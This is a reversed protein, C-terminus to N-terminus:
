IKENDLFGNQHPMHGASEPQPLYFFFYLSCRATFRGGPGDGGEEEKVHGWRWFFSLSVMRVCVVCVASRGFFEYKVVHEVDLELIEPENLFRLLAREGQQRRRRRYREVARRRYGIRLLPFPSTIWIAPYMSIGSLFLKISVSSVSYEWPSSHEEGTIHYNGLMRGEPLLSTKEM